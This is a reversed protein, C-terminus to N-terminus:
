ANAVLSASTEILTTQASDQVVVLQRASDGVHRDIHRQPVRREEERNM